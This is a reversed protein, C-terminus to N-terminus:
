RLEELIVIARRQLEAVERLRAHIGDDRIRPLVASLRTLLSRQKELLDGFFGDAEEISLYGAYRDDAEDLFCVPSAMRATDNKEESM